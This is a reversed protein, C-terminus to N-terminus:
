AIRSIIEELTIQKEEGTAMDKLKYKRSKVEEKGVVVVYPIGLSNAYDLQSRLNRGMLDVQTNIGAQRLKQVVKLCDKKVDDNVRIVFVKTVSKNRAGDREKLLEIIREIGLAIGVAPIEEKSGAFAGIMKDYRGGGALSGIKQDKSMIEFITSTYYDLGRVMSLDVVINMRGIAELNDLLDELERIGESGEKNSGILDKAKALAKKPGFKIGIIKLLKEKQKGKIGRSELEKEVGEIGVKDLKDIARFADQVKDKPIGAFQMMGSLLNRNNIRMFCDKFGLEEVVAMACDIIEADALMDKTGVIDVDCQWFERYRGRKIEEYRWVRSIEFRKFPKPLQPNISVVRALPVTQDFRLALKRNSKDEFMYLKDQEGTGISEKMTFLEFNEFAPTKFPDYGYRQFVKKVTDFVRERLIMEEPLFDRTGKPPQLREKQSLKKGTIEGELSEGEKIVAGVFRYTDKGVRKIELLKYEGIESTNDVHPNGCPQTDFDGISVIRIEKVNEPVKSIDIGKPVESRKYFKKVVPLSRRIVANVREEFEEKPVRTMDRSCKVDLRIKNEYFQMGTQKAKYDYTLIRWLIHQASELRAKMEAM